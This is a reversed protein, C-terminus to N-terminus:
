PRCRASAPRASRDIWAIFRDMEEPVRQAPPAEFHIRPAYVAGSVVQMPEELTRYSGVDRLDQRGAMLMRHWAWLIEHSLPAQFHRYLDVM